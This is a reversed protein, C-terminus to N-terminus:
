KAEGWQIVSGYSNGDPQVTMMMNPRQDQEGWEILYTTLLVQDLSPDLNKKAWAQVAALAAKEGASTPAVGQTYATPDNKLQVGAFYSDNMKGDGKNASGFREWISLPKVQTGGDFAAVDVSRWKGDALKKSLVVFGYGVFRPKYGEKNDFVPDTRNNQKNATETNKKQAELAAQAGAVAKKENPSEPTITPYPKEIYYPTESSGIM